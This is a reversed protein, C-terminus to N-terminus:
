LTTLSEGQGKGDSVGRLCVELERQALVHERQERQPLTSSPFTPLSPVFDVDRPDLVPLPADTPPVLWQYIVGSPHRSPPLITYHKADARYEGDGVDVFAEEDARAYVHYGRSTQVTPLTHALDPHADAWRQYSDPTDFDRCALGGSARGLLVALGDIGRRKFWKKMTDEDIPKDQLGKWGVTAEKGKTPLVRWGLRQYMLAHDALSLPQPGAAVPGGGTQRVVEQFLEEDAVPRGARANQRFVEALIANRDLGSKRLREILKAFEHRAHGNFVPADLLLSM